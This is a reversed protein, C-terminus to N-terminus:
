VCFPGACPEVGAQSCSAGTIAGLAYGQAIYACQIPDPTGNGSPVCDRGSHLRGAHRVDLTGVCAPDGELVYVHRATNDGGRSLFDAHDAETANVVFRVCGDQANHWLSLSPLPGRCVELTTAPPEDDAFTKQLVASLFFLVVIALIAYLARRWSPLGLFWSLYAALANM